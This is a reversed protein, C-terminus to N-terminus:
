LIDLKHAQDIAEARGGVGLKGYIRSSYAKITNISLHMEAAIERNSLGAAILKLIRLEQKKLPEFLIEKQSSQKNSESQEAAMAALITNTNAPADRQVAAQALLPKVPQGYDLFIRIFGQPVALQLSHRMLRIAQETEGQTQWWLAWLIASEVSWRPSGADM